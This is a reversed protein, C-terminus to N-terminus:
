CPNRKQTKLITYAGYILGIATIILIGSNIPVNCPPPWCPPPPPPPPPQSFVPISLLVGLLLLLEIKYKKDRLM